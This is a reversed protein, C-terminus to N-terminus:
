VIFMEYTVSKGIHSGEEFHFISFMLLAGYFSQYVIKKTLGLANQRKVSHDTDFIVPSIIKEM